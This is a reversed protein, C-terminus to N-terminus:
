PQLKLWASLTEVDQMLASGYHPQVSIVDYQKDRLAMPWLTSDKVCPKDPNAYIFPLSKGCDVHYQVDGDLLKPTTDWTLSNGILYYSRAPGPEQAVAAASMEALLLASLLLLKLLHTM